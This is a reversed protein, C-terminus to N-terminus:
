PQQAAAVRAGTRVPRYCGARGGGMSGIVMQRVIRGSSAAASNAAQLSLPESMCSGSGRVTASTISVAGSEERATPSITCIVAVARSSAPFGSVPWVKEQALSLTELASTDLM